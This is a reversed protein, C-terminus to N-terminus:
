QPSLCLSSGWEDRASERERPCGKSVFCFCSAPNAIRCLLSFSGRLLVGLVFLIVIPLSLPLSLHIAERAQVRKEKMEM